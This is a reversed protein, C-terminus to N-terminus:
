EKWRVNGGLKKIVVPRPVAPYFTIVFSIYRCDSLYIVCALADRLLQSTLFSEGLTLM